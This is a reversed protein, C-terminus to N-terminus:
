LKARSVVCKIDNSTYRLNHCKIGYVIFALWSMQRIIVRAHYFNNTNPIICEMVGIGSWWSFIKHCFTTESRYMNSWSCTLIEKPEIKSRKMGCDFTSWESIQRKTFHPNKGDWHLFKSFRMQMWRSLLAFIIKLFAQQQQSQFIDPSFPLNQPQQHGREECPWSM